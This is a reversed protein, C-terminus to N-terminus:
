TISDILFNRFFEKLCSGIVNIKLCYFVVVFCVFFGISLLHELFDETFVDQMKWDYKIQVIKKM